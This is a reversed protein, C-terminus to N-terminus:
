LCDCDKSGTHWLTDLKNWTQWLSTNSTWVFSCWKCLNNLKSHIPSM